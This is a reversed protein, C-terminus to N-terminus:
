AWWSKAKRLLCELLKEDRLCEVRASKEDVPPLARIQDLHHQKVLRDYGRVAEVEASSWDRAWMVTNRTIWYHSRCSFSWNGISPDLSISAGDFILTWDTPSLPTVVENGCGCCCKHVATAFPLSVYVTGDKLHSPIFDVFEHILHAPRNM